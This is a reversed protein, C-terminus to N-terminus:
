HAWARNLTPRPSAWVWSSLDRPPREVAVAAAARDGVELEAVWPEGQDTGPSAGGIGTGRWKLEAEYRAWARLFERQRAAEDLGGLRRAEAPGIARATVAVEDIRRRAIEIDVGIPGIRTFAYLAVHKSHSLNFSLGMPTATADTEEAPARVSDDLLAPKGHEGSAFSLRRPEAELYRGLLVRLVGHARAWLEGDRARLFRQARSRENTSLLEILDGSVATLDARWVHVAGEALHPRLPGPAWSGDTHGPPSTQALAVGHM